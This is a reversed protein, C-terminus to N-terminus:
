TTCPPSRHDHRWWAGVFHELFFFQRMQPRQRRLAKLARLPLNASHVRVMMHHKVVGIVREGGSENSSFDPYSSIIPQYPDKKGGLLDFEM